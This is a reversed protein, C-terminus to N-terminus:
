RKKPFIRIVILAMVLASFAVVVNLVTTFLSTTAEKEKQAVAKRQDNLEEINEAASQAIGELMVNQGAIMEHIRVTSGKLTETMTSIEETLMNHMRRETETEERSIVKQMNLLGQTHVPSLASDAAPAAATAAAPTGRKRPSGAQEPSMSDVRPTPNMTRAPTKELAVVLEALEALIGEGEASSGIIPRFTDEAGKMLFMLKEQAEEDMIEFVM